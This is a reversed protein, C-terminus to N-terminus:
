KASLNSVFEMADSFTMIQFDNENTKLYHLFQRHTEKSITFLPGGIGHFQYVGMGKVKKVAEAFAILEEATTSEMVHWSPVQMPDIKKLDPLISSKDGGARAFAVMNREKLKKSYDIGRVITNNCPFAFSRKETKHDIQSLYVTATEIEALLQDLTYTELAIDKQWGLKEPCPHFLTHNALEHGNAAAKRWNLFSSSGQAFIESSGPISNIFFTAKFGNSDLQPIANTLQSELADDYTLCIIAKRLQGNSAVFTLILVTLLLLRRM